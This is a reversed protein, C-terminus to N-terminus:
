TLDVWGGNLVHRSPLLDRRLSLPLTCPAPHLTGRRLRAAGASSLDVLAHRALYLTCPAPHRSVRLLPRRSDRRATRCVACPAPHLCVACTPPRPSALSHSDLQLLRAPQADALADALIATPPVVTSSPPACPTVPLLPSSPAPGRTGPAPHLTRVPDRATSAISSPALGSTRWSLRGRYPSPNQLPPSGPMAHCMGHWPVHWVMGHRACAMGGVHWAAYMGHYICTTDRVWSRNASASREVESKVDALSALSRALTSSMLILWGVPFPFPGTCEDATPCWACGTLPGGPKCRALAKGLATDSAEADPATGGSARRFYRIGRRAERITHKGYGSFFTHHMYWRTNWTHWQFHGALVPTSRGLKAVVTDLASVLSSPVLHTDDDAKAIWQCVPCVLRALRLWGRLALIRGRLRHESAPVNLFLMDAHRRQENGLGLRVTAPLGGARLLFRVYLGSAGAERVWSERAITRRVTNDPTTLIGVALRCHTPDACQAM